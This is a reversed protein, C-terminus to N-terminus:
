TKCCPLNGQTLHQNDGRGALVGPHAKHSRRPPSTETHPFISFSGCPTSGVLSCSYPSIVACPSPPPPPPTRWPVCWSAFLRSGKECHSEATGASGRLESTDHRRDSRLPPSAARQINIIVCHHVVKMECRRRQYRQPLAGDQTDPQAARVSLQLQM